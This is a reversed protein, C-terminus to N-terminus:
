LHSFQPELVTPECLLAPIGNPLDTELEVSRKEKHGSWRWLGGRPKESPGEAKNESARSTSGPSPIVERRQEPATGPLVSPGPARWAPWSRLPHGLCGPGCTRQTLVQPRKKWPGAWRSPPARSWWEDGDPSLTPSDPFPLHCRSSARTRPRPCPCDTHGERPAVDALRDKVRCGTGPLPTSSPQFWPSPNPRPM